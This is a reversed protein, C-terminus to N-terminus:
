SERSAEVKRVLANRALQDLLRCFPGRPMARDPAILYRMAQREEDLEGATVTLGVPIETGAPLQFLSWGPAGFSPRPGASPGPLDASALVLTVGDPGPGKLAPLRARAKGLLREEFERFFPNAGPILFRLPPWLPPGTEGEYVRGLEGAAILL